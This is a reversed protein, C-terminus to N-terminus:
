IIDILNIILVKMYITLASVNINKLDEMPVNLVFVQNM